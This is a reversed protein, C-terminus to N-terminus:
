LSYQAIYRDVDRAYVSTPHNKKLRRYLELAKEREGSLGYNRAANNLNEAVSPNKADVGAAKEFASAAKDYVHLAEQCQGIGEWRSVELLGDVPSFKEFQELAEAYQGLQYYSSALLLRALEGGRSGGEEDVIQKLGRINREPIGDIAQQYQAADFLQHVAAFQAMARENSDSRYKVYAMTGLIVVAIAVIAMGFNKKHTELFASTKAYTTVLADQKIERKSIKKKPKLMRKDNLFHLPVRPHTEHARRSDFGFGKAGSAL